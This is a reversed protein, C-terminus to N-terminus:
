AAGLYVAPTRNFRLSTNGLSDKLEVVILATRERVEKAEGVFPENQPVTFETYEVAAPADAPIPFWDARSTQSPDYEVSIPKSSCGVLPVAAFLVISSILKLKM